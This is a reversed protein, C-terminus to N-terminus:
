GSIKEGLCYNAVTKGNENMVYVTGQDIHTLAASKPEQYAVVGNMGGDQKGPDYSVRVVEETLEGGNPFIIKITLM